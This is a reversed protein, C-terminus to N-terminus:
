RGFVEEVPWDMGRQSWYKAVRDWQTRQCCAETRKSETRVMMTCSLLAQTRQEMMTVVGRNQLLHCQSSATICVRRHPQGKVRGVSSEKQEWQEEGDHHVAAPRQHVICVEGHRIAAMGYFSFTLSLFFPHSFITRDTWKTLSGNQGMPQSITHSQQAHHYCQGTPLSKCEDGSPQCNNKLNLHADALSKSGHEAEKGDHHVNLPRPNEM